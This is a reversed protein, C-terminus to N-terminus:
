KSYTPITQTSSSIGKLASMRMMMAELKEVQAEEDEDDTVGHVSSEGTSEEDGFIARHLGFMERGMEDGIFKLPDMGEGDDEGNEFSGFSGVDEEDGDEGLEDDAAWDNAELAEKVREMGASEGFENRAKVEFDVFEFGCERCMEEWVEVELELRPQLSQPMGVALCVGDWAYGCGKVISQVARLVERIRALDAESSPKRFTLIFGGLAHLVERAEPSLYTSSWTNPATLPIEDIWIPVTTKYYPTKLPLSHSLGAPSTSTTTTPPLSGTLAKLFALKGSSRQGVLLIRRSNTIELASM